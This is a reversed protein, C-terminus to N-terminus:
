TQTRGEQGSAPNKLQLLENSSQSVDVYLRDVQQITALVSGQQATVLAGESVQSKGIRGPDRWKTYDLNIRM